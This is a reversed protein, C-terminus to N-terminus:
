VRILRDFRQAWYDEKSLICPFPTEGGSYLGYIYDQCEGSTSFTISQRDGEDKLLQTPGGEPDAYYVKLNPDRTLIIIRGDTFYFNTLTGQYEIQRQEGTALNYLYLQDEVAYLTLDGWHAMGPVMNGRIYGSALVQYSSLDATYVRLEKVEDAPTQNAYFTSVYDVYNGGPNQELYEKESLPKEDFVSVAALVRDKGAGFVQVDQNEFPSEVKGSDLQVRIMFYNSSTSGDEEIIDHFLYLYAYGHAIFGSSFYYSDKGIEGMFECLKTRQRTKPDVKWVAAGISGENSPVYWTGHYDVFGVVSEALYAGCSEDTHYCGSQSCLPVQTQVMPDYYNLLRSQPVYFGKGNASSAWSLGALTFNRNESPPTAHNSQVSTGPQSTQPTQATQLCGSLSTLLALSLLATGITTGFQRKMIEVGKQVAPAFNGM